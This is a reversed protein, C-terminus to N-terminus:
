VPMCVYVAYIYVYLWCDGLCVRYISCRYQVCSSWYILPVDKKTESAFEKEDDDDTDDDVAEATILTYHTHVQRGFLEYHIYGSYWCSSSSSSQANTEPTGPIHTVLDAHPVCSAAASSVASVSLLLLLLWVLRARALVTSGM